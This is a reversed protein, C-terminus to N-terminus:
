RHLMVFVQFEGVLFGLAAGVAILIWEDQQFAPRLLKEFEDENLEQMKAILTNKVDMADAAYTEVHRLAEPLKEVIKEAVAEKMGQYRATGVAMVVFPKALGSQEDVMQKVHKQVMQYLRDSLPGRLVADLVATPTIVEDAILAGYRASVERRRRLFMGQWEFLGFLYRTPRKPRFVMKLALWDTAWGTFGGFVPMVWPSHTLAWTVAQVCGIVFGFWIGSRAIFKFEERGVEQFIRNLLRKDRMLNTVVMDKLDFVKDIDRQLERMIQAVLDPADAQVRRIVRQRLTEPLIEWLGPQYAAAVERTVDEVAALMPQEIERAVRKPDLRGFVDAPKLLRSTMTDCAIAAMAAAKRPVIGQWGLFPPKFGVFEVPEFMMRIAVLKTVYGIVAAVLPMSAYLWWNRQLDALIENWSM